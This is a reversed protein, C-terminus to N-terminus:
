LHLGSINEWQEHKRATEESTYCKSTACITWSKWWAANILHWQWFTQQTERCLRLLTSSSFMINGTVDTKHNTPSPRPLSIWTTICLSCCANSPHFGQVQHATPGPNRTTCLLVRDWAAIFTKCFLNGQRMRKESINENNDKFEARQLNIVKVDTLSHPM